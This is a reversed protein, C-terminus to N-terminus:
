AAARLFLLSYLSCAGSLLSCCLLSRIKQPLFFRTDVM